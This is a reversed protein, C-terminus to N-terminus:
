PYPTGRTATDVVPTPALTTPHRRMRARSKAALAGRREGERRLDAREDGARKLAREMAGTAATGGKGIMHAYVSMTIASNAHGLRSSVAAIPLGEALLLSAHLHRLGHTTLPRLGAQECVARIAQAVAFRSIPEGLAGCFVLNGQWAAGAKLRREAVEARHATLAGIAESPLAITRGGAQTKTSGVIWAGQVQTLTKNVRICGRTLDVDDWTLALLEGLRAGSCIALLWLVGFRHTRTAEIFRQLEERDWMECRSSRHTPRVVRECPNSALWGWLVALSLAAGPCPLM